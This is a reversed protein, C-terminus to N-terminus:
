PRSISHFRLSKSPARYQKGKEDEVIVSGYSCHSIFFYGQGFNLTCGSEICKVVNGVRWNSPDAMDDAPQPQKRYGQQYLRKSFSHFNDSAQVHSVMEDVARDEDTTPESLMEVRFCYCVGDYEVAAMPIGECDFLAKIEVDKGIVGEGYSIAYCQENAVSATAGVEPVWQESTMQKEEGGANTAGLIQSLTLQRGTFVEQKYYPHDSGHYFEDDRVDWGLLDSVDSLDIGTNTAGAAMFARAVAYYGYESLDKTAIYDGPQLTVPEDVQKEDNQRESLVWGGGHQIVDHTDAFGMRTRAGKANAKTAFPEGNTRTILNTM